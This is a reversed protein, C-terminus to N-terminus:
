SFLAGVSTSLGHGPVYGLRAMACPGSPFAQKITTAQGLFLGIDMLEQKTVHELLKASILGADALRQKALLVRDM